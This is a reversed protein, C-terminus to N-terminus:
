ESKKLLNIEIVGRYVVFDIHNLYYFNLGLIWIRGVREVGDEPHM